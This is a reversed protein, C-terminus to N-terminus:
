TWRRSKKEKNEFSGVSLRWIGQDYGGYGGVRTIWIGEDFGGMKKEM